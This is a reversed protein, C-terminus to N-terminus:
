ASTEADPLQATHLGYTPWAARQCGALQWAVLVHCSCLGPCLTAQRASRLGSRTCMRAHLCPKQLSTSADHFMFCSVQQQPAASTSCQARAASHAPVAGAIHTHDAAEVDSARDGLEWAAHPSLRSLTLPAPEALFCLCLGLGLASSVCADVCLRGQSASCSVRDNPAGPCLASSGAPPRRARPATQREQCQRQGAKSRQPPQLNGETQPSCLPRLRRLAPQHQQSRSRSATGWRHCAQDQM